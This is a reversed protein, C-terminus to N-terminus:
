ARAAGGAGVAVFREVGDAFPNERLAAGSRLSMATTPLALPKDASLGAAGGVGLVGCM